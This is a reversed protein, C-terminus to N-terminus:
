HAMSAHDITEADVETPVGNANEKVNLNEETHNNKVDTREM